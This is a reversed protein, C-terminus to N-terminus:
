PHGCASDHDPKAGKILMWGAFGIEGVAQPLTSVLAVIAAQHPLFFYAFSDIVYSCGAIIVLVGLLRPLFGSKYVLIGMPLLWVGWYMTAARVGQIRLAWFGLTLADLQHKDFASLYTSGSTLVLPAAMLITLVSGIAMMGLVFGVMLRAQTRDVDRFLDYLVMALWIAFVGCLLDALIGFRYLGASAAIRAATATADGPVIFVKPIYVLAFAGPLGMALYLGGGLRATQQRTM